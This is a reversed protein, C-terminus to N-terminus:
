KKAFVSTVNGVFSVGFGIRGDAFFCANCASDNKTIKVFLTVFYVLIFHDKILM